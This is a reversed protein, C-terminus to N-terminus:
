RQLRWGRLRWFATLKAAYHSDREVLGPGRLASRYEQRLRWCIFHTAEDAFDTAVAGGATEYAQLFGRALGADIMTGSVDRCFEWVTRALEQGGSAM